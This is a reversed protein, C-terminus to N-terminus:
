RSNWGNDYICELPKNQEGIYGLLFVCKAAAAAKKKKLPKLYSM